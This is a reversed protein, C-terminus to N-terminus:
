IPRPPRVKLDTDDAGVLGKYPRCDVTNAHIAAFIPAFIDTDYNSDKGQFSPLIRM